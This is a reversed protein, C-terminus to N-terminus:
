SIIERIKYVQEIIEKKAEDNIKDPSIVPSGVNLRDNDRGYEISIIQPNCYNLLEKLIQYGMDNIKIHCMIRNDKEIWGNIHIESVQKLPLRSLYTRFDEGIIRSVCFAHSIDLIFSCQSQNIIETLVEPKILAGFKVNDPNEISIFDMDSYKKRFYIINSVITNILQKEPIVPDVKVLCPHVSIGPTKTLNLIRDLTDSDYDNILTPSSLDFPNPYLGHLLVPKIKTVRSIFKELEGINQKELMKMHSGLAPIKFYDIDIKKERALEETELYYNCALKM